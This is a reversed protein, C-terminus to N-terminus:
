FVYICTHIHMFPLNFNLLGGGRDSFGRGDRHWVTTFPQLIKFLMSSTKFFCPQRLIDAPCVGHVHMHQAWCPQLMFKHLHLVAVHVNCSCIWLSLLHMIYIFFVWSRDRSKLNMYVHPTQLVNGDVRQLSGGGIQANYRTGLCM